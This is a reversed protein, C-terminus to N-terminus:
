VDLKAIAAHVAESRTIKEKRIHLDLLRTAQPDLRVSLRSGNIIHCRVDSPDYEMWSKLLEFPIGMYEPGRKLGSKLAAMVEAIGEPYNKITHFHKPFRILLGPILQYLRPDVNEAAWLMDKLSLKKLFGNFPPHYDEVYGKWILFKYIHLFRLDRSGPKKWVHPAAMKRATLYYKLWYDQIHVPFDIAIHLKRQLEERRVVWEADDTM